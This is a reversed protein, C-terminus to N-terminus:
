GGAVEDVLEVVAVAGKWNGSKLNLCGVEVLGGGAIVPERKEKLLGDVTGGVNISGDVCCCPSPCSCIDGRPLGM